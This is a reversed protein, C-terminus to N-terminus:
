ISENEIDDENEIYDLPVFQKNGDKDIIKKLKNKFRCKGNEDKYIKERFIEEQTKTLIIEKEVYMLSPLEQIPSFLLSLNGEVIQLSSLDQIKSNDFYASGGISTLSNMSHINSYLFQADGGISMLSDMSQIKSDHFDANGGISTLSNMSQIESKEFNANGGISTLSNMSQIPTWYFNANGDIVTLSNMSQITHNMNAEISHIRKIKDLVELQKESFTGNFKVQGCIITENNEPFNNRDLNGIFLDELKCDFRKTLATTMDPNKNSKLIKFIRDRNSNSSFHAKYDNFFMVDDVFRPNNETSFTGAEHQKIYSILRKNWEEKEIWEKGYKINKNKELFELAVKRYEEELEQANGGKLGRVEDIENGNMKVAIHPKGDNDIFVFFDGQELQTAALTKTCWPTDQVLSALQQANEIYKDQNSTKGEFKLWRGMGFTDIGELSIANKEATSNNYIALGAYYLNAFSSYDKLKNYIVNLVTENLTMHGALSLGKERNKVYTKTDGEADKEQKYTKTLTENLMLYKFAPEYATTKIFDVIHKYEAHQSTAIRESIQQMSAEKNKSFMEANAGEGRAELAKIESEFERELEPNNKTAIDFYEAKDAIAYAEELKKEIENRLDPYKNEKNKVKYGSNLVYIKEWISAQAFQQEIKKEMTLNLFRKATSENEENLIIKEFLGKTLDAIDKSFEVNCSIADIVIENDLIGSQIQEETYLGSYRLFYENRISELTGEQNLIEIITEKIAKFSPSNEYHHLLEHMNIAELDEFTENLYITKGETYGCVDAPQSFFKTEIGLAKNFDIIEQKTM